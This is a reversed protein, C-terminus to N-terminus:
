NTHTESFLISASQLSSLTGVDAWKGQHQYEVIRHNECLDLYLPTLSLKQQPPIYQIIDHEVVHIGSFALSHANQQYNSKEIKQQTKTNEWGCLRGETTFWLYRSSQRQKVALTALNQQQIHTQYLDFLNLDSLIDANHLLIPSRDPFLDAAQRLGGATDLLQQSEDSIRIDAAFPNEKVYQIIQEALYHVNIVIHTFGANIIRELVHQILPKGNLKVLAKPTTDTLPALRTGMGAAFILANM